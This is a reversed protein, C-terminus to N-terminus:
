IMVGNARLSALLTNLDAVITPATANAQNPLRIGVKEWQNAQAIAMYANYGYNVQIGMPDDGAFGSNSFSVMTPEMNSSVADSYPITPTTTSPTLHMPQTHKSLLFLPHLIPYEINFNGLDGIFGGPIYNVNGGIPSQWNDGSVNWSAAADAVAPYYMYCTTTDIPYVIRNNKSYVRCETSSNDIVTIFRSMTTMYVTCGIAVISSLPGAQVAYSALNPAQGEFYVGFLNVSNHNGPMTIGANHFSEIAGGYMNVHSGNLLVIGYTAASYIPTNNVRIKMGALYVNYCNDFRLCEDCGYISTDQITNYYNNTSRIGTIFGQVLLDSIKVAGNGGACRIGDVRVAPSVAGNLLVFSKLTVACDKINFAAADTPSNAVICSKTDNYTQTGTVNGLRNDQGVFSLAKTILIENQINYVGSLIITGGKNVAAIAAAFAPSSDAVGTPDAGFDNVNVPAGDIMSYSVKTLAM